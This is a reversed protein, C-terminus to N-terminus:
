IKKGYKKIYEIFENLPIPKNYLYGQYLKCGLELLKDRQAEDEVYEAIIKVGLSESLKVISSVIQQNTPNHLIDRVLSGDLKVVGFNSSQLYLISTHGMGFDDIMMVHGKEKLRELKNIVLAAKSLVDQETIEIWLYSPDVKYEELKEDIYDEIDWLLSKATLNISIKFESQCEHRIDNIASVSMEIIKREMDELLGGEKALYIILPPYIFGYLPHNWRLLAEAGICIGNNDVQPQYLMFLENNEIARKLDHRLMRCIQGIRNSRSFLDVNENMEEKEQLIKILIKLQEKAYVEQAHINIKIFPTYIAVGILILCIQLISGKISGTAIYGSFLVPTTWTIDNIVPPVLGVATAVFAIIYCVIPTCIFPVALIPNLIIPLGFTLVENMNFIIPITAIRSLMKLYSKRFVTLLSILLCITTGCGGMVVYADLFSKSFIDGSVGIVFSTQAVPELVHSGHLGISWMFHLLFTYLFGKGFENNINEFINCMAGSILDYIREAHFISLIAHNAAVFCGVVIFSPLLMSLALATIREIGGTYKRLCLYPKSHLYELLRCSILATVIAFFCGKTGLMEFNLETPSIYLQVSFSCLGVLEYLITKDIAMNREMCYSACLSIVMVVSFISYTANYFVSLFHQFVTGSIFNQYSALPFNAIAGALGSSLIFPIMMALGRKIVTLIFNAELKFTFDKLKDKM